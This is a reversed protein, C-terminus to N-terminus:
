GLLTIFLPSPNIGKHSLTHLLSACFKLNQEGIRSESGIITLSDAYGAMLVKMCITSDENTFGLFFRKIYINQICDNEFIGFLKPYYKQNPFIHTSFIFLFHVLIYYLLGIASRISISQIFYFSLISIFYSFLVYLNKQLVIPELQFVVLKIWHCNTRSKIAMEKLLFYLLNFSIFHNCRLQVSSIDCSFLECQAAFTFQAFFLLWKM